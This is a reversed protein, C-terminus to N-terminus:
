ESEFFMGREMQHGRLFAAADMRKKGAAQLSEVVLVGSGCRVRIGDPGTGCIEGPAASADEPVERDVRAKWLKLMKGNWETFASPWPSLGRIKREIEEASCRWDIRGDSKRIMRAYPTPSEEPQRVPAIAGEALKPITDLLLQAGLASLREFLSGGTEDPAIPTRSVSLIDGTDLGENMKMISVGTEKKGDLIAWQIPAAGRYEPLLSAHVNICGLKPLELIEKPIIKGYAAVVILDPAEKALVQYAEKTRVSHPQFVTIGAKKACIKVDSERLRGGRGVPKDEKTVALPIDYGADILAQLSAAAFDPTGMFIVRM